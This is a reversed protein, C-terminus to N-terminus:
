RRKPLSEKSRAGTSILKSLFTYFSQLLGINLFLHLSVETRSTCTYVKQCDSCYSQTCHSCPMCPVNSNGCRGCDGFGGKQGRHMPVNLNVSSMVRAFSKLKWANADSTSRESDIISRTKEDDNIEKDVGWMDIITALEVEYVHFRGM